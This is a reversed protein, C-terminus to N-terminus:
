WKGPMLLPHRKVRLNGEWGCDVSRCRYRSVTVFMSLLLDVLRRPVRTAPGKCHPCACTISSYGAQDPHGGGAANLTNMYEHGKSGELHHHHRQRIPQV